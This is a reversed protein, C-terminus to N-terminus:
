EDQRTDRSVELSPWPAHGENAAGEPGEAGEPGVVDDENFAKKLTELNENVKDVIANNLENMPVTQRHNVDLQNKLDDV